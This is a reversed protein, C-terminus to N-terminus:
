HIKRIRDFETVYVSVGDTAIGQPFFFSASLATGDLSSHSGSGAFLSMSVQGNTAVSIQRITDRGYESVYLNSGDVTDIDYPQNLGTMWTTVAGTSIVIKRISSNSTDAVYLNTGDTTIGRPGGFTAATGTGDQAGFIGSGALTTVVGTAIVVKRIKSNMNDTVYLNTGDTAIGSPNNFSAGAGTGDQAGASGSGAITSVAGTAIVVKRISQNGLDAVYLNTGDTAIAAPLNFSAAAGVGNLAGCGLGISCGAGGGGGGALTSVVGTAIVVKRIVHSNTDAVYLNTGDSVIDGNLGSFSAALGTGDIAGFTGSGALTTVAATNIVIKRIKHSGTESVYLNSGILIIGVPTSFGAATGTGDVAGTLIASNGALTTVAGTAIVVQRITSNNTDAVYLNTGDTAIGNPSNFSAAAGIGDRSGCTAGAGTCAWGGGGAGGALTTVVATSIVVKRIKHSGADAVYLNTGDTAIGAPSGFSATAGTGDVAFGAAGGALTTVAGTAIVIKRIKQNATDAVYLNTGDNTIGQPSSFRAATGTGDLAGSFNKNGALTTVVGTAIVIKRITNNWTDAVYLNTGDTTIGAPQNFSAAGGTGDLAGSGDTSPFIAAGSGGGGALTTVAGTALDVKRIKHNRTDAVYINIGDSTISSPSYFKAAFASGDTFYGGAITTVMMSAPTPTPAPAPSTAPPPTPTSGAGPSNGTSGGGGGGCATLLAVVLVILGSVAMDVFRM